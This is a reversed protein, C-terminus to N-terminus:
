ILFINWLEQVLGVGVFFFVGEFLGSCVQHKVILVAWDGQANALYLILHVPYKQCKFFGDKFLIGKANLSAM